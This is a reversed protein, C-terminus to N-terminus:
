TTERAPLHTEMMEILERQDEPAVNAWQPLQTVHDWIGRLVAAFEGDDMEDFALSRPELRMVKGLGVASLDYEVSDCGAGSQAQFHKLADHADMSACEAFHERLLTGFVHAMRHFWVRRPKRLDARVESGVTYKRARMANRDWKTSPVLVGLPESMEGTEQDVLCARAITFYIPQAVRKKKRMM